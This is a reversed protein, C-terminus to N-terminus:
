KVKNPQGGGSQRHLAGKAGLWGVLRDVKCGYLQLVLMRLNNTVSDDNWRKSKSRVLRCDLRGILRGVM